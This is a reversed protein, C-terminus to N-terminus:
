EVNYPVAIPSIYVPIEIYEGPKCRKAVDALETEDMPTDTGGFDTGGAIFQERGGGSGVPDYAINADPNNEQFGAVWAAMAAEQSSAGAGAIEGSVADGSSGSSGSDSDSSGCAAVGLALALTLPIAILWKKM